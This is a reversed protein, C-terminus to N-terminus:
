KVNWLIFSVVIFLLPICIFILVDLLKNNKKSLFDYPEEWLKTLSLILYIGWYLCSPIAVLLTWIGNNLSINREFVIFSILSLVPCLYHLIINANKGKIGRFDKDKICNKENSSLLLVYLLSTFVLGTTVVYRVGRVYQPIALEFFINGVLYIAFLFSVVLCLFNQLYTYYKFIERKKKLRSLVYIESIIIIVNLFLLIIM